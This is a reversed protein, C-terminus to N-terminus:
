LTQFVEAYACKGGLAGRYQNLGRVAHAYDFEAFQSAHARLARLKRSMVQSIDTVQDFEALPTWVEYGRLTPKKFEGGLVEL